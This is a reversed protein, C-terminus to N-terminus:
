PDEPVSHEPQKEALQKRVGDRQRITVMGSVCMANQLGNQTCRAMSVGPMRYDLVAELVSVIQRQGRPVKSM